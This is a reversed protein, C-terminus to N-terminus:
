PFLFIEDLNSGNCVVSRGKKRATRDEIARRRGLVIMMGEGVKKGEPRL